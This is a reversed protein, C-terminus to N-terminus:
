RGCLVGTAFGGTQDASAYSSGSCLSSDGACVSAFNVPTASLSARNAGGAKKVQATQGVNTLDVCDCRPGGPGGAARTCNRIQQGFTVGRRRPCVLAQGEVLTVRSQASQVRIDLVTGRVGIAANPTSIIYANKDLKGTTFRFIGRALNVTMKQGNSEGVYVFQDLTVRSIPGVGLNTSDLFVLKATSDAGTRVVENRYVSDGATLPAMAGALDRTVDNHAVATSGIHEQASAGALGAALACLAVFILRWDRM